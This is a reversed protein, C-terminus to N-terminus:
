TTYIFSFSGVPSVRLSEVCGQASLRCVPYWSNVTIFPILHQLKLDGKCLKTSARNPYSWRHDRGDPFHFVHTRFGSATIAVEIRRRRIILVSCAGNGLSHRLLLYCLPVSAKHFHCTCLFSIEGKGGYSFRLCMVANVFALCQIGDEALQIWDVDNFGM